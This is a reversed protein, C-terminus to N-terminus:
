RSPVPPVALQRGLPTRLWDPMLGADLPPKFLVAFLIATMVALGALLLIAPPIAPRAYGEESLRAVCHGLYTHLIVLLGILALKVFMWPEFVWRAFLLAGGAFTAIVAAPSVCFNYAFHAFVRMRAGEGARIPNDARALLIPLMLLGACWLSLGAIHTFKLAAIM